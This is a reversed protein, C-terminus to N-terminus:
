FGGLPVERCACHILKGALAPSIAPEIGARPLDWMSLGHAVVVSGTSWLAPALVVSDM